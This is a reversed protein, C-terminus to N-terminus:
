EDLVKTKSQQSIYSPVQMPHCPHIPASPLKLTTFTNYFNAIM